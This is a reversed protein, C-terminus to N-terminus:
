PFSIEACYVSTKRLHHVQLRLEADFNNRKSVSGLGLIVKASLVVNPWDATRPIIYTEKRDM